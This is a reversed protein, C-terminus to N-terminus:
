ELEQVTAALLYAAMAIGTGNLRERTDSSTHVRALTAINGRSLTVSDWGADSFAISDVLVGPIIGRVRLPVSTRAAARVVALTAAGRSARRAMCLFGGEDDVTDCNLAIGGAFPIPEDSSLSAAPAEPFPSSATFYSISEAYARAGALGLEEGSTLIVGLDKRARLLSAALMVAIVGSANDVAGPSADGVLCLIMPLTTAAAITSLIPTLSPIGSLGMSHGIWELAIALALIGFAAAALVVSAVRVIMPLTQSKSDLHAVLWIRPQGRVAVLNSSWSPTGVFRARRTLWVGLAGSVAMGLALVAFAPAAGRHRLYTQATLLATVLWVAAVLPAGFRGPFESFAFESESVSMGQAKLVKSCVDRAKKESESGVFRSHSAIQDLLEGARAVLGADDPFGASGSSDGSKM